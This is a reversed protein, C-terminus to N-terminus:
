DETVDIDGSAFKATEGNSVTKSTTLTGWYLQNGSASADVTAFGVITGWAATATPFTIETGSSKSGGSAAPWTSTSNAVAVRAYAGGSVETGSASDTPAGTFLAIYVNAPPSFSVSGLVYDLFKNELYDSKGGM